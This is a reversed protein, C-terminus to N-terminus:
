LLLKQFMVEQLQVLNYELDMELIICNYSDKTNTFNSDLILFFLYIIEPVAPLLDEQCDVCIRKCAFATHEAGLCYYHSKIVDFIWNKDCTYRKTWFNLHM